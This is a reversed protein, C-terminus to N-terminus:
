FEECSEGVTTQLSRIIKGNEFSFAERMLLENDVFQYCVLATAETENANADPDMQWALNATATIEEWEDLAEIFEPKTQTVGLDTLEIVAADALLDAIAARNIDFLATYWRELLSNQTQARAVGPAALLAALIFATRFLHM